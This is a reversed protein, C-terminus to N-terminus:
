ENWRREALWKMCTRNLQLLGCIFCWQNRQDSNLQLLEARSNVKQKRWCSKNKVARDEESWMILMCELKGFHWLKSRRWSEAQWSERLTLVFLTWSTFFFFFCGWFLGANAILTYFVPRSWGPAPNNEQRKFSFDFRDRMIRRWMVPLSKTSHATWCFVSKPNKRKFLWVLISNYFLCNCLFM